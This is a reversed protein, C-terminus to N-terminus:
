THYIQYITFVKPFAVIYGWGACCYVFFCGGGFFFSVCSV